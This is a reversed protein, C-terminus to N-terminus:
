SEIVIKEVEPLCINREGELIRQFQELLHVVVTAQRITLDPFLKDAVIVDFAKSISGNNYRLARSMEYVQNMTYTFRMSDTKLINEASM